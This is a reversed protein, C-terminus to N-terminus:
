RIRKVHDQFGEYILFLGLTLLFLSIAPILTAWPAILLYTRGLDITNGLQHIINSDHFGLFGLSVYILTAFGVFLPIYIILKKLIEFIKYETRVFIWTFLPILIVGIIILFTLYTLGFATTIVPILFFFPMIYFLLLFGMIVWRGFWRHFKNDYFRNNAFFGFLLGGGVGILVVLFGFILADQIGYVVLALIDRGQYGTGFPHGPSPPIWPDPYASVAETLSYPTIIQPVISIVVFFLFFILGIITLPSKLKRIFYSKFDKFTNPNREKEVNSSLENSNEKQSIKEKRIWTTPWIEKEVMHHYISYIINAAFTVLVITIIVVFLCAQIVYYDQSQLADVFLKGFEYLNFMYGVLIAYGLILGFILAIRATNYIISTRQAKNVANIRVLKVILASITFGLVLGPLIYHLATDFALDWRGALISDWIRFGTVFPPDGYAMNKFGYTPLNGSMFAGFQFFLVLFIVPVAYGLVNLIQIIIKLWKKRTKISILGILIGAIAGVTLPLLLVEFTRQLRGSGVLLDTVPIGPLINSSRYWNGTLFNGLFIFFQIILPEDYGLHDAMAQYQEPTFLQPLHALVPDIPLLNMLIFTLILGAFLIVTGIIFTKIINKFITKLSM